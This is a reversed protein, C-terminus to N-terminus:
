VEHAQCWKSELRREKGVPECRHSSTAHRVQDDTNVGLRGSYLRPLPSLTIGHSPHRWDTECPGAEVPQDVLAFILPMHHTTLCKCTSPPCSNLHFFPPYPTSINEVHPPPSERTERATAKRGKAACRLLAKDNTQLPTETGM